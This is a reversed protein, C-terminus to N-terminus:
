LLEGHSGAKVTVASTAVESRIRPALTGGSAGTEIVGEIVALYNTNAVAVGTGLPGVDYAAAHTTLATTATIPVYIRATFTVPSTPGTLALGLGTTAAATSFAIYFRFSYRTFAALTLNLGTVTVYTILSNALNAALRVV